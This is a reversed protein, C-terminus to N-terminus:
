LYLSAAFVIDRKLKEIAALFKKELDTNGVSKAASAFQRLLEELRRIVRIITGEFADTMKTIDAFKAGNVWAYLVEMMFPNFSSIYKELELPLRSEVIVKGVTRAVEQLKRHPGALEETLRPPQDDHAEDFVMCSCVACIQAIDLDNFMGTFVLEAGVLEDCTSLECAVRGKTQIVDDESTHGLMRLVRRMRQLTQRLGSDQSVEALKARLWEAQKALAMKNGHLAVLEAREPATHLPHAAIKRRLQAVRALLARFGDSKLKMSELPKLLPLADPRTDAMAEEERDKDTRPEPRKLLEAAADAAPVASTKARLLMQRLTTGMLARGGREHLKEHVKIRYTSLGNIASIVVPVIVYEPIVGAPAPRLTACTIAAASSSGSDEQPPLRQPQQNPRPAPPPAVAERPMSDPDVALLVDVVTDVVGVAIQRPGARQLMVPPLPAYAGHLAHPPVAVRRRVNVIVGWGWDQELVGDATVRPDSSVAPVATSAAAAAATGMKDDAKVETISPLSAGMIPMPIGSSYDDASGPRFRTPALAGQLAPLRLMVELATAAAGRLTVVSSKGVNPDTGDTKVPRGGTASGNAIAAAGNKAGKAGAAAAASPEDAPGPGAADFVSPASSASAGRIVASIRVIRGPNCFPEAVDPVNMAVRMEHKLKWLEEQLAHYAEVERARPVVIADHQERLSDIAAQIQPAARQQQFQFFSRAMMFELDAGDVRLLNLLMNYGLHFSSHLPDAAGTIMEKAVAPEMQSDLMMIVIGKDDLGRRGARGSMQIYEGSSISRYTVGDFKNVSTFVVTRAPMNLGMSFTETSFLVKLLGEQFLIEVVEKLIPLLGGHHVGIGRRLLPFMNVVQPLQKDDDNLAQMANSFIQTILQKETDDCLDLKAMAVANSECDKKSFSFVICPQYQKEMIMKVIKYVDSGAGGTKKRKKADGGAGDAIPANGSKGAEGSSSDSNLVALARQFNNDRFQGKEDLCLYLGEGGAPFVYHQLPTPRYDTYVVSCPQAHLKAVWLAFETANPITASLFVFRCKHPLLIITAEWVVGRSRDRMYHVEDFIVWAIERVVESGRYLMNLLIETTMVLCSATPNITVDGTMLGVDGFEEQLERFKQNSLAKIPSTYIVRQGMKLSLAIAYEAVVTKGASTHASVLVSQNREICEVARQQFPDLTFPYTKAPEKRAPPPANEPAEPNYRPPYCTQMACTKEGPTSPKPPKTSGVVVQEQYHAFDDLVAERVSGDGALTVNLPNMSEGSGSKSLEPKAASPASPALEAETVATAPASASMKSKSRKVEAKVPAPSSATRETKSSDAAASEERGRRRNKGGPAAAEKDAKVVPVAPAAAPSPSPSAVPADVNVVAALGQDEFISFLDSGGFPDM